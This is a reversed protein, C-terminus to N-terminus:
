IEFEKFIYAMERQTSRTVEPTTISSHTVEPITISSEAVEPITIRSETVEPIIISSHTVEPTERCIKQSKPIKEKIWLQFESTGSLKSIETKNRLKKFIIIIIQFSM